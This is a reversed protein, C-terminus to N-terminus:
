LHPEKEKFEVKVRRGNKKTKLTVKYDNMMIGHKLCISNLETLFEGANIGSDSYGRFCVTDKHKNIIIAIKKTCGYDKFEGYIPMFTDIKM